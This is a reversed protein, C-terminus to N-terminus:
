YLMWTLGLPIPWVIMVTAALFSILVDDSSHLTFNMMVFYYIGLGGFFSFIRARIKQIKQHRKVSRVLRDKRSRLRSSLKSFRMTFNLVDNDTKNLPTSLIAYRSDERWIAKRQFLRRFDGITMALNLAFRLLVHILALFVVHEDPM